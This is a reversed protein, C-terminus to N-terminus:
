GMGQVTKGYVNSNRLARIMVLSAARSTVRCTIMSCMICGMLWVRVKTTYCCLDASLPSTSFFARVPQWTQWMWEGDLDLTPSSWKRLATAGCCPKRSLTKTCSPSFPKHPSPARCLM